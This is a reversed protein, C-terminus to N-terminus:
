FLLSGIFLIQSLLTRIGISNLLVRGQQEKIFECETSDRIGISNLLVRGPQEKIFKFETSDCVACKSLLMLKGNKTMAVKVNKSKKNKRSKLCYSSM